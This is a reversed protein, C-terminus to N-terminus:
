AGDVDAEITKTAFASQGALEILRVLADSYRRLKQTDGDIECKGRKLGEIIGMERNLLATWTELTASLLFGNDAEESREILHTGTCVGDELGCFTRGVRGQDDTETVYRDFEARLSESLADGDVEDTPIETVEFVFDGNFGIGWGEGLETYEEDTNIRHVYETFWAQSPFLLQNPDDDRNM